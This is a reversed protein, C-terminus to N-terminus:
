NVQVNICQIYSPLAGARARMLIYIFLIFTGSVEQAFRANVSIYEVDVKESVPRTEPLDGDRGTLGRKNHTFLPM